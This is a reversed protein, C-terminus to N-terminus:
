GVWSWNKLTPISFIINEEGEKYGYGLEWAQALLPGLPGGMSRTWPSPEALPVLLHLPLVGSSSKLAVPSETLIPILGKM